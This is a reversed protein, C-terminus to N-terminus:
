FETHVPYGMGFNIKLGEESTFVTQKHYVALFLSSESNGFVPILSITYIAATKSINKNNFSIAPLGELLSHCCCFDGLDWVNYVFHSCM